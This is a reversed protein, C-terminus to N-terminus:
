CDQYVMIRQYIPQSFHLRWVTVTVVRLWPICRVRSSWSAFIKLNRKLLWGSASIIWIKNQWLVRCAVPMKEAWWWANEVTCEASTLKMCTKIVAELCLWTEHLNQHGSGLLTLNWAPKSSRKWASDLKMCTTSSRKWASDPHEM